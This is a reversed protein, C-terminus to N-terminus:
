EVQTECHDTPRHRETETFREESGCLGFDVPVCTDLEHPAHLNARGAESTVRGEDPRSGNGAAV